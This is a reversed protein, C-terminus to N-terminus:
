LADALLVALLDDEDFSRCHQLLALLNAKHTRVAGALRRQEPHDGALFLGILALDRDIAADGDAIEALIDAFHGTTADNGFHHIPGARDAREDGFHAFQFGGHAVGVAGVFHVLDDGAIAIHLM